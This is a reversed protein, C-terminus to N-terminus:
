RKCECFGHIKTHKKLTLKKNSNKLILNKFEGYKIIILENLIYKEPKEKRTKKKYM